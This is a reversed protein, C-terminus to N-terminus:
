HSFEATGAAYDFTAVARGDKMMQVRNGDDAIQPTAGSLNAGNLSGSTVTLVKRPRSPESWVLETPERTVHGFSESQLDEAAIDGGHPLQVIPDRVISKNTFLRTCGCTLLSVVVVITFRRMSM